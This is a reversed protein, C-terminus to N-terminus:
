LIAIVVGRGSAEGARRGVLTRGLPSGPTIVTVSKGEWDVEMGGRAPGLFYWHESGGSQIVVVAGTAAPAGAAANGVALGRYAAVAEGLETALKAQGAALYAASQARMDYKGEQRNEQNTAEDRSENAALTLTALEAELRAVIADRLASKDAM